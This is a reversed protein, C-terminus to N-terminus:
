RASSTGAQHGVAGAGSCAGGRQWCSVVLEVFVGDRTKCECQVEQHQLSTSLRGAVVQGGCCFVLHLGPRAIKKFRGFSEIVEM